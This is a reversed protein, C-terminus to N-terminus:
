TRGDTDPWRRSRRGVPQCPWHGRRLHSRPLRPLAHVVASFARSGLPTMDPLLSTTRRMNSWIMLSPLSSRTSSNNSGSKVLSVGCPVRSRSPNLCCTASQRLPKGVNVALDTIQDLFPLGDGPRYSRGARVGALEHADREGPARDVEVAKVDTVKPIAAAVPVPHEHVVDPHHSLQPTMGTWYNRHAPRPGQGSSRPRWVLRM